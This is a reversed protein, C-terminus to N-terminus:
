RAPRSSYATGNDICPEITLGEKRYDNVEAYAWVRATGWAGTQVFVCPMPHWDFPGVDYDWHWSRAAVRDICAQVVESSCDGLDYLRGSVVPRVCQFALRLTDELRHLFGM